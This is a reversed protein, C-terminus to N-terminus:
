CNPDKYYNPALSACTEAYNDYVNKSSANNINLTYEGLVQNPANLFELVYIDWNTTEGCQMNDTSAGFLGGAKWTHCVFVNCVMAPAQVIENSTINLTEYMWDDQEVVM